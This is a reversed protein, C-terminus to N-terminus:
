FLASLLAGNKLQLAFLTRALYQRHKHADLISREADLTHTLWFRLACFKQRQVM